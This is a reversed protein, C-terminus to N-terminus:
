DIVGNVWPGHRLEEKYSVRQAVDREGRRLARHITKM